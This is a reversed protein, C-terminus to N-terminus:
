CDAEYGGNQYSILSTQTIGYNNPELQDVRFSELRLSQDMSSKKKLKQISSDIRSFFDDANENNISSNKADPIMVLDSESDESNSTSNLSNPMKDSGQRIPIRLITKQRVCSSDNSWLQNYRKIDEMTCDYKLSLGQLTDRETVIHDIFEVHEYDRNYLRPFQNSSCSLDGTTGYVKISKLCLIGRKEAEDEEM